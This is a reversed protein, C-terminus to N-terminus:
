SVDRLYQLFEPPVALSATDEDRPSFWRIEIGRGECVYELMEAFLECAEPVLVLRLDPCEDIFECLRMVPEDDYADPIDNTEFDYCIGALQVYHVIPHRAHTVSHRPPSKPHFLFLVPPPPSASSSVRGLNSGNWRDILDIQVADLDAIFSSELVPTYHAMRCGRISLNLLSPLALPNLITTSLLPARIHVNNMSLDTLNPLCPRKGFFLDVRNLSLRRLGKALQLVGLDLYSMVLRRFYVEQMNPLARFVRKLSEDRVGPVWGGCFDVFLFRSNDGFTQTAKACDAVLALPDFTASRAPCELEIRECLLTQAVRGFQRSVTCWQRLRRRRRERPSFDFDAFGHPAALRLISLLLEDPLSELTKPAPAPVPASPTPAAFTDDQEDTSAASLAGCVCM